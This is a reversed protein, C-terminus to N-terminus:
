RYEAFEELPENFDDRMWIQENSTSTYLFTRIGAAAQSLMFHDIREVWDDNSVSVAIAAHCTAAFGDHPNAATLFFELADELTEDNHWTTMVDSPVYENTDLRVQEEIITEDFIDHIRECDPGWTSIYVAGQALAKEAFDALVEVSVKRSNCALFLTFRPSHLPLYNPLSELNTLPLHFLNREASSEFGFAKVELREM